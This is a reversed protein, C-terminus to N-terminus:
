ATREWIYAVIMPPITSGSDTTGALAAGLTRGAPNTANHSCNSRENTDWATTSVQRQLIAGGTAVEIQAQGNDSLPHTHTAAGGDAAYTSGRAMIMKDTIATWTGFGLLTAPNTAVTRNMYLSGVPYALALITLTSNNDVNGLGISTKLTGLTAKKSDGGGTEQLEIEDTSVPTTKNTLDHIESAM